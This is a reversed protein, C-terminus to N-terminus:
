LKPSVEFPLKPFTLRSLETDRKFLQYLADLAKLINPSLSIETIEQNILINSDKIKFFEFTLDLQHINPIIDRINTHKEYLNIEMNYYNAKNYKTRFKDIYFHYLTYLKNFNIPIDNCKFLTTVDDEKFTIKKLNKKAEKLLLLVHEDFKTHKNKILKNDTGMVDMKKVNPSDEESQKNKGKLKDIESQKNKEKPKEIEDEENLIFKKFKKIKDQNIFPYILRLQEIFFENLNVKNEKVEEDFVNRAIEIIEDKFENLLNTYETWIKNDFSIFHISTEVPGRYYPEPTTVEIKKADKSLEKLLRPYQSNKKLQKTSCSEAYIKEELISLIFRLNIKNKIIFKKELNSSRPKKQEEGFTERKILKDLEESLKTIIENKKNEHKIVEEINDNRTSLATCIDEYRKNKKEGNQINSEQVDLYQEVTEFTKDNIIYNGQIYVDLEIGDPLHDHCAVTTLLDDSECDIFLSIKNLDNHKNKINNILPIVADHPNSPNNKECEKIIQTQLKNVNFMKVVLNYSMINNEEIISTIDGDICIFLFGTFDFLVKPAKQQFRISTVWKQFIELFKKYQSFLPFKNCANKVNPDKLLELLIDKADQNTKTLFTKDHNSILDILLRKHEFKRIPDNYRYVNEKFKNIYKEQYGPIIHEIVFSFIPPVYEKGDRLRDYGYTEEVNDYPIDPLYTEYFDFPKKIETQTVLFDKILNQEASNDILQSNDVINDAEKGDIVKEVLWSKLLYDPSDFLIIKKNLLTMIFKHVIDYTLVSGKIFVDETLIESKRFLRHLEIVGSYSTEGFVGGQFRFGFINYPNCNIYVRYRSDTQKDILEKIKTVVNIDILCCVYIIHTHNKLIPHPAGGEQVINLLKNKLQETDTSNTTYNNDSTASLMSVLQNIDNNYSNLYGGKQPMFSSTADSYGEKQPMFSSTADSITDTSKISKIKISKPIIVSSESDLDSFIDNLSNKVM